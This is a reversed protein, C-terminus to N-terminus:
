YEIGKRPLFGVDFPHKTQEMTTIYHARDLIKQPFDRGTMVLEVNDPKKDLFSLFDGVSIANGTIAYVVEDMIVLDYKDWRSQIQDLFEEFAIKQEQMEEVTYKKFFNGRWNFRLLDIGLKQLPEHESTGDPKFCQTYLVKWGAGKARVALGVSATTKGKSPGTYIHILRPQSDATKTM